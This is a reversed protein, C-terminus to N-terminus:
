TVQDGAPLFLHIPQAAAAEARDGGGKGRGVTVETVVTGATFAGIIRKVYYLGGIGLVM